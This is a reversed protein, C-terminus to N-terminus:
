NPIEEDGIDGPDSIKGESAIKEFWKEFVTNFWFEGKYRALETTHRGQIQSTGFEMHEGHPVMNMVTVDMPLDEFLSQSAGKAVMALDFHYRRGEESRNTAKWPDYLSSDVIQRTYDQNYKNLISTWGGRLQGTDLPTLRILYKHIQFVVDLFLGGARRMFDEDMRLIEDLRETNELRMEVVFEPM